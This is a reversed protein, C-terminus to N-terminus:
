FFESLYNIVLNYIPYWFSKIELFQIFFLLIAFIPTLFAKVYIAFYAFIIDFFFMLKFLFEGIRTLICFYTDYNRLDPYIYIGFTLNSPFLFTGLIYKKQNPPESSMKKSNM